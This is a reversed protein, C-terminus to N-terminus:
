LYEAATLLPRQFWLHYLRRIIINSFHTAAPVYHKTPMRGGGLRTSCEPPRNWGAPIQTSVEVNFRTDNDNANARVHIWKPRCKVIRKSVNLYTAWWQYNQSVNITTLKKKMKWLQSMVRSTWSTAYHPVARGLQLYLLTAMQSQTVCVVDDDSPGWAAATVEYCAVLNGTSRSMVRFISNIQPCETIRFRFGIEQESTM